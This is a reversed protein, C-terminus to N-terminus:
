DMRGEVFACFFRVLAGNSKIKGDKFYRPTDMGDCVCWRSGSPRIVTVDGCEEVEIRWRTYFEHFEELIEARRWAISVPVEKVRNIEFDKIRLITDIDSFVYVAGDEKYEKHDSPNLYRDCGDGEGTNFKVGHRIFSFFCAVTNKPLNRIM